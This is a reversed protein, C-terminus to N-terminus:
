TSWGCDPCYRGNDGMCCTDYADPHKCYIQVTQLEASAVELVVRAEDVKALAVFYKARIDDQTM